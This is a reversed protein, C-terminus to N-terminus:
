SAVESLLIHAFDVTSHKAQLNERLLYTGHHADGFIRPILHGLFQRRISPQSHPSTPPMRLHLM